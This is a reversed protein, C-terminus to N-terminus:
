KRLKAILQEKTLSSLGKLKKDQAKKLLVAKTLKEYGIKKKKGGAQLGQAIDASLKNLESASYQIQNTAQSAWDSSGM